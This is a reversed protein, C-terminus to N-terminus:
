LFQERDCKVTRTCKNVNKKRNSSVRIAKRFKRMLAFANMECLQDSQKLMHLCEDKQGVIYFDQQLFIEM